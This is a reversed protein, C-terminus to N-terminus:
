EGGLIRDRFVAVDDATLGGSKKKKGKDKSPELEKLMTLADKIGKVAKLDVDEPSALLRGLKIEIAEKLAAAADAPNNIERIQPTAQAEIQRNEREFQAQKIALDELKAVAFGVIPNKSSILEKLMSARALVTDARIDAEAQALEARKDAWDYEKGWRKLTSAAVGVHQAVEHYPLRAVCYLEMAKWVTEPPYERGKAPGPNM